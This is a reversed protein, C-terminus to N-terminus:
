EDSKRKSLVNGAYFPGSVIMIGTGLQIAFSNIDTGERFLIVILMILLYLSMSVVFAVFKRSGVSVM